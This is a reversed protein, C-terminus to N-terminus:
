TPSELIYCCHMKGTPVYLEEHTFRFRLKELVKRSAFNDPYCGAFVARAGLSDFVLAIAARASELALGQGWYPPRFHFGLEYVREEPKYPRLGCCGAFDDDALSFVPWYQVHHASMSAIERALREQIQEESFPGGIFRTVRIDGWLAVALPYDDVSWPRFGLRSTKLFYAPRTQVITGGRV